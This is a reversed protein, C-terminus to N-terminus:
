LYIQTIFPYSQYLLCSSSISRTHEYWAVGVLGMLYLYGNIVRISNWYCLGMMLVWKATQYRLATKKYTLTPSPGRRWWDDVVDNGPASHVPVGAVDASQELPTYHAHGSSRRHKTDTECRILLLSSDCDRWCHSKCDPRVHKEACRWNLKVFKMIRSIWYLIKIKPSSNVENASYKWLASDSWGSVCPVRRWNWSKLDIFKRWIIM